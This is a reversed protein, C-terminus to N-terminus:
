KKALLEASCKINYVSGAINTLKEDVTRRHQRYFEHEDSLRGLHIEILKLHQNGQELAKAIRELAVTEPSTM